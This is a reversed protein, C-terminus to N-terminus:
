FLPALYQPWPLWDCDVCVYDASILAEFASAGSEAWAEFRDLDGADGLAGDDCGTFDQKRLGVLFFDGGGAVCHGLLLVAASAVQSRDLGLCECLDGDAIGGDRCLGDSVWFICVGLAQWGVGLSERPQVRLGWLLSVVVLLFFGVLQKSQALDFHQDVLYAAYTGPPIALLRFTVPLVLESKVLHSRIKWAGAINQM